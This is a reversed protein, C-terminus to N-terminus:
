WRPTLVNIQTAGLRARVQDDMILSMMDPLFQLVLPLELWPERFDQSEIMEWAGLSLTLMRLLLLLTPQDRPLMEKEVYNNVLKMASVLLSNITFPDCNTITLFQLMMDYLNVAERQDWDDRGAEAGGRGPAQEQFVWFLLGPCDQLRFLAKEKNNIYQSLLLSVEDESLSQNDCQM